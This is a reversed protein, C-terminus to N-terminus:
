TGTSAVTRSTQGTFVSNAEKAGPTTNPEKTPSPPPTTGGIDRDHRDQRDHRHRRRHGSPSRRARRPREPEASASASRSSARSSYLSIRSGPATAPGLAPRARAAGPNALAIGEPGCFFQFVYSSMAFWDCCLVTLLVQCLRIDFSAQALSSIALNCTATLRIRKACRASCCAAAFLRTCAGFNKTHELCCETLSDKPGTCNGSSSLRSKDKIPHGHMNCSSPKALCFVPFEARGVVQVVPNRICWVKDPQTYTVTRNAVDLRFGLFQHNTVEELQITGGYFSLNCFDQLCQHELISADALLLRNDVYRCIFLETHQTDFFRSSALFQTWERQWCSERPIVPLSSLVPSIQNGICTGRHQRFMLGLTTFVGAKFSM